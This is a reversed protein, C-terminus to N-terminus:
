KWGEVTIRKYPSLLGDTWTSVVEDERGVTERQRYMDGARMMVWLKIDQPIDPQGTLSSVEYGAVYEITIRDPEPYVDPWTSGYRLRIACQDSSDDIYYVNTSLSQTSGSSDLYTISVQSTIVPAVPLEIEDSFSSLTYQYTATCLSRGTLHEAQRTATRIYTRLMVDEYTSTIRLHDKLDDLDVALATSESVRRNGM